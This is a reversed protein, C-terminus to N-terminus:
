ENKMWVENIWEENGRMKGHENVKWGCNMKEDENMIWQCHM